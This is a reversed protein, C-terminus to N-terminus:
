SMYVKQGDQISKDETKWLMLLREYITKGQLWSDHSLQKKM